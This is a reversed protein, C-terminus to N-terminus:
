CKQTINLFNINPRYYLLLVRGHCPRTRPAIGRLDVDQPNATAFEEFLRTYSQIKDTRYGNERGYWLKEEFIFFFLKQKEALKLKQWVFYPSKLFGAAKDLATRYPISYDTEGIFQGELKETKNTIEELQREYARKIQDSTSNIILDTLKSAKEELIAKEQKLSLNRDVMSSIEEKWVRDFVIEVLVDVKQKLQQKKLLVDFRKKADVEWLSIRHLPCERNQCFYYSRKYSKNKGKTSTAGTLHKGCHTCVILGRLPFQESLDVRIRKGTIENSLRKQNREFTETSIIAEHHGKRRSVEWPLYEIDGVYFPDKLMETFKDTYKEANKGKWFGKEILYRCGDVRRVFIGTSFGELAHKIIPAEKKNPAALTGCKSDKVMEYGRKAVFAWYGLELRAKTKQIVQRRNQHRELENQAALITEAFLGEPSEDFNYNLCRPLVDRARFSARLKIHFETDRAFRKLDDFIVLFKKHPNADIYAILNRMAPRKMFDGGGTYTDPFTKHHLVGISQLDKICRGEQSERGHGELEQRKSSVRVYVLGVRDEYPNEVKSKQTIQNNIKISM